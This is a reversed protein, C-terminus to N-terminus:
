KIIPLKLSLRAQVCRPNIKGNPLVRDFKRCVDPRDEYVSCSVHKGVEGELAVCKGGKFTERGKMFIKDKSVFFIKDGLKKYNPNDEERFYVKFYSCCAGCDQCEPFDKPDIKKSLLSKILQWM